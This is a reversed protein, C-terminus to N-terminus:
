DSSWIRWNRVDIIHDAVHVGGARVNAVAGCGLCTLRMGGEIGERRAARNCPFHRTFALVGLGVRGHGRWETVWENHSAVRDTM